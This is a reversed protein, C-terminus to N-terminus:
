ALAEAELAAQASAPMMATHKGVISAHWHALVAASTIAHHVAKERHFAVIRSIQEHSQSEPACTPLETKTLREAETHHALARSALHSLLWFWAKPDKSERDTTGWRHEQHQAELMVAKPFDILEPTNIIALLKDREAAAALLREYEATSEIMKM